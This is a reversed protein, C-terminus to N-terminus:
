DTNTFNLLPCEPELPNVQRWHGHLAHITTTTTPSSVPIGPVLQWLKRGGKWALEIPPQDWGMKSFPSWTAMGKLLHKDGFARCQSERHADKQVMVM